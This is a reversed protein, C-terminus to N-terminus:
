NIQAAEEPRGMARLLGVVMDEVTASEDVLVVPTRRQLVAVAAEHGDGRVVAVDCDIGELLSVAEDPIVVGLARLGLSRLATVVALRVREDRDVVLVVLDYM